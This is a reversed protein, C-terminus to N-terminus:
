AIKDKRVSVVQDKSLDDSETDEENTNEEAVVPRTKVFYEMYRLKEQGRSWATVGIISGMAVHFLGGARMTMPHWQVLVNTNEAGQQVITFLVPGIIFDFACIFMYLWAMMPRWQRILWNENDFLENM